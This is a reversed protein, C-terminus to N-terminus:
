YHEDLDTEVIFAPAKPAGNYELENNLRFFDDWDEGNHAKVYNQGKLRNLFTYGGVATHYIIKGEISCILYCDINTESYGILRALKGSIIIPENFHEKCM